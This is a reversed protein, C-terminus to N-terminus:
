PISRIASDPPRLGFAAYDNWLLANLYFRQYYRAFIWFLAQIPFPLQSRNCDLGASVKPSRWQLMM